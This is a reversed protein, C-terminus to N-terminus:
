LRDAGRRDFGHGRPLYRRESSSTGGYGPSRRRSSRGRWWTTTRHRADLDLAGRLTAPAGPDALAAEALLRSGM